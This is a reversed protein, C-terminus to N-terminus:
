GQPASPASAGMKVIVLVYFIVALAGLVLGLAISRMRRRKLFEPDLEPKVPPPAMVGM